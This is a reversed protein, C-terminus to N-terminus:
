VRPRDLYVCYIKYRDGEGEDEEYEFGDGEPDWQYRARECDSQALPGSALGLRVGAMTYIELYWGPATWVSGEGARAPMVLALAAATAALFVSTRM